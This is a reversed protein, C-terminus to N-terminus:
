MVPSVKDFTICDQLVIKLKTKGECSIDAVRGHFSSTGKAEHTTELIKRVPLLLASRTVAPSMKALCAAATEHLGRLHSATQMMVVWHKAGCDLAGTCSVSLVSEHQLVAFVLLRWCM